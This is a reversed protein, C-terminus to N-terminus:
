GAGAPLLPDRREWRRRARSLSSAESLGLLYAVEALSMTRDSLYRRALQRRTDDVLARFSTGEQKLKRQMSRLSVNLARAMETQEVNGAPLSRALRARVQDALSPSDIRALYEEVARANIQALVSNATSLPADIEERAFVLANQEAEFVVPCCFFSRMRAERGSDAQKLTVRRLDVADGRAQRCLVAIAALGAQVPSEAAFPAFAPERFLRGLSLVVEGDRDAVEVLAGTNVVRAYRVLYTLAERLTASALAAYGLAHFSTPHWARGVDLGFCPDQTVEDALVWLRHIATLPYRANPDDLEAYSVRARRFFAEADIGRETLSRAILRASSSLSSPGM